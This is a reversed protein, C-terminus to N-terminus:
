IVELGDTSILLNVEDFRRDPRFRLLHLTDSKDESYLNNYVQLLKGKFDELRNSYYTSLQYTVNGEYRRAVYDFFPLDLTLYLGPMPKFRLIFLKNSVGGGYQYRPIVDLEFDDLRFRALIMQTVSVNRPLKLTIFVDKRGKWADEPLRLGTFQEQLVHLVQYCLKRLNSQLPASNNCTIDLYNVLMPSDLFAAIFAKEEEADLKGFFYALRRIQNRAYPFDIAQLSQDDLLYYYIDRAGHSFLSSGKEKIWAIREFKPMLNLGFSTDRIIKVPKLKTAEPVLERGDDGFFRNIFSYRWMHQQRAILSMNAVDQCDLGGTISYALHGTMQRMTFRQGYEYLRKYVLYVRQKVIELNNQLVQVNKAIFCESNITCSLCATWNDPQLMREFVHCATDISDLQGINFLCFRNDIVETPESASLALLLDSYSSEGTVERFGDLLTGTNSVIFYRKDKELAEKLVSVREDKPLESMDKIVLLNHEPIEHRKGLDTINIESLNRIVDIAITTKGDGANGTLIVNKGEILKLSIIESLPNNIHIKKFNNNRIQNEAIANENGASFCSLSNLYAVFSDDQVLVSEERELTMEAPLPPHIEEFGDIIENEQESVGQIFGDWMESLSTFGRNPETAVAKKLWPFLDNYEPLDNKIIPQDGIAPNAYPKEGFVWEWLTVGLAFLDGRPSFDRDLGQVSDPPVYGSTGQYADVRPPGAIGLDIIVPKNHPTVIINEPKIDGHIITQQVGDDSIYTHFARIGEMLSRAVSDFNKRKPPKDRQEILQRLTHGPVYDMALFFRQGQWHGPRRDYRVVYPSSILSGISLENFAREPSADCNFVKLVVATPTGLSLKAKAKYLQTEAGCGIFDSIEYIDYRDGISFRANYSDPKKNKRDQDQEQTFIALLADADKLRKSRDSVVVSELGNIVSEPVGVQKLKNKHEQTFQGGLAIYNRTSKFAKDGTLLQYAIVGLSFYDTSEDIDGGELLEPAVYGDDKIVTADSIVTLRREEVQYSLDFNTLKPNGNVLLINEPKIARHIIGKEHAQKLGLAINKCLTFTKYLPMREQSSYILDQLTGTESWDSVEIIDGDESHIVWVKHIYTSDGIQQVANLTNLAIKRFREREHPQDQIQRFVRLRQLGRAKVGIPRALLEICEPRQSLYEVTEYGPVTYEKHYIPKNQKSIFDSVAIIHNQRLVPGKREKRKLYAIFDSISRFTLNHRNTQDAVEPVDANIVNAEPNTLVVVSEVWINPYTVFNHQYLGKLIKCKFSNNKHPDVRYKTNNIHWNYQMIDINGTWHKLEVVYIGSTAIIILDYEFYCHTSLDFIHINSLSEIGQDVVSNKIRDIAQQEHEFLSKGEFIREEADFYFKGDTHKMLWKIIHGKALHRTEPLRLYDYINDELYGYDITQLIRNKTLKKKETKYYSYLSEKGKKVKLCWIGDSQLHFFPYELAISYSPYHPYTKRFLGNFEPELDNFYFLNERNRTKDFISIIALLMLHKHPRSTGDRKSVKLQEFVQLLEHESM